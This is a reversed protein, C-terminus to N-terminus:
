KTKVTKTKSWASYYTKGGTKLYTRIRVYYKKKSRLQKIKKSTKSYKKIKVIEMGTTFKKNTAYQLQYGAIRSFSMKTKCKKWKVTFSQKGKTIKKITTGKPLVNFSASASGSYGNKLAVTVTYTGVNRRGAPMTVTYSSADLVKGNAKVTVAPTIATGTYTYDTQALTLEVPKESSKIRFSASVSGTYKRCGTMTVTATGVATNNKYSLTYDLGELLTKGELTVVPKPTIAEGTYAADSIAAVKAGSISEAKEAYFPIEATDLSTLWSKGNARTIDLTNIVAGRVRLKIGDSVLNSVSSIVYLKDGEHGLYLMAHGSFLLESGLPLEKIIAAKEEDSMGTLTWKRVPQVNQNTTNRGLQLGFCRYVDRVYGSCDQSTLMGGWGYANGLQSFMVKSLNAATLPLYGENVDCHESILALQNEFSGDDLRVPMWVVYNNYAYRNSIKGAWDARDALQLRVGMTLLRNATEPAYNSDETYIKDTTVVLSQDDSFNWAALWEARDSCIAVDKAPVWGGLYSTNASYYKGDASKGRLILPEGVSVATLYLTDFDPDSPDDPLPQDTPFSRLTTRTTCIAYLTPMSAAADPDLCNDILPQYLKELAEAYTTLKVGDKYKDGLGSYTYSADSEAAKKLSANREIGNYTDKSWTSMDWAGTGKGAIIAQNIERIEEPTALVEDPAPEKASWYAPKAMAATVDPLYMTAASFGQPIVTLALIAALLFLIRSSILRRTKM